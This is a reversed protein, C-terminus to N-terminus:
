AQFSCVLPSFAVAGLLKLAVGLMAPPLWGFCLLLAPKCGSELAREAAKSPATGWGPQTVAM